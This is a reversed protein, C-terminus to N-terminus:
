WKKELNITLTLSSTPSLFQWMSPASINMPAIQLSCTQLRLLTKIREEAMGREVAVRGGGTIERLSIITATPLSRAIPSSLVANKIIVHLLVLTFTWCYPIRIMDHIVTPSDGAIDNFHLVTKLVM